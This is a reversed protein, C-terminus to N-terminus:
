ILVTNTVSNQGHKQVWIQLDKESNSEESASVFRAKMKALSYTTQLASLHRCLILISYHIM